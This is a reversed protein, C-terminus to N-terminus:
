HWYLRALVRDTQSVLGRAPRHAPDKGEDAGTQQCDQYPGRPATWRVWSACKKTVISLGGRRKVLDQAAAHDRLKHWAAPLTGSAGAGAHFGAPHALGLGWRHAACGHQSPADEADGAGDGLLHPRRCGALDERHLDASPLGARLSFHAGGRARRQPSLDAARGIAVE